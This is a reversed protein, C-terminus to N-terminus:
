RARTGRCAADGPGRRAAGGVVWGNGRWARDGDQRDPETCCSCFFSFCCCMSMYRLIRQSYSVDSGIQKPALFACTNTNLPRAATLADTERAGM